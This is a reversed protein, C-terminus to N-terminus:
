TAEEKEASASGASTEPTATAAVKEAATAAAAEEKEAAAAIALAHWFFGHIAAQLSDRGLHDKASYPIFAQPPSDLAKAIKHIQTLRQNQSLKDAKTLIPITDIGLHRFWFWLDIDDQTPLHRIDLLHLCATLSSRKTIYREIMPQWERRVSESIKAYGYGPLDVLMLKQDLLFFNILRTRGPTSSVQVLSKRHFLSNLLSSKGVNSRGAVAIEPYTPPPYDNPKVASKVFEALQFRITPQEM